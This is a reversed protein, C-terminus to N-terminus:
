TMKKELLWKKKKQKADEIKMKPNRWKQKQKVSQHNHLNHKEDLKLEFKTPKNGKM